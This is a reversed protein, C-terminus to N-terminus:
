PHLEKRGKRRRRWRGHKGDWDVYRYASRIDAETADEDVGLLAFAQEKTMRAGAMSMKAGAERWGEVSRRDAM